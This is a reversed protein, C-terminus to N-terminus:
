NWYKRTKASDVAVCAQKAASSKNLVCNVKAIRSHNWYCIAEPWKYDMHKERQTNNPKKHFIPPSEWHIDHIKLTVPFRFPDVLAWSTFIFGWLSNAMFYRLSLLFLPLLAVESSTPNASVHLMAGPTSHSSSLTSRRWGGGDWSLSLLLSKFSSAEQKAWMVNLRGSEAVQTKLDQGRRWSTDQSWLLHITNSFVFAQLPSFLCKGSRPRM